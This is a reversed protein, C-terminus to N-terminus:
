RVEGESKPDGLSRKLWRGVLDKDAAQFDLDSYEFGMVVFRGLGNLRQCSYGIGEEFNPDKATRLKLFYECKPNDLYNRLFAPSFAESSAKGKLKVEKQSQPYSSHNATIVYDSLNGHSQDFRGTVRIKLENVLEDMLKDPISDVLPTSVLINKFKQRAMLKELTAKYENNNVTQTGIILTEKGMLIREDKVSDTGFVYTVPGLINQLMLLEPDGQSYGLYLYRPWDKSLTEFTFGEVTQTGLKSTAVLSFQNFGETSGIIEIENQHLKIVKDKLEKPRVILKRLDLSTGTSDTVRLSFKKMGQYLIAPVYGLPYSERHFLPPEENVLELNLTVEKRECSTNRTCVNFTIKHSTNMYDISIHKWSFLYNSSPYVSNQNPTIQKTFSMEGFTPLNGNNVISITPEVEGNLDTASVNFLFHTGTLESPLNVEPSLRADSVSITTKKSLKRGDKAVVQVNLDFNVSSSSSSSLKKVLFHQPELVLNFTNHDVNEVRIWNYNEAVYVNSPGLPYDENEIDFSIKKSEGETVSNYIALNTEFKRPTDLVKLLAQHRQGNVENDTSFLWFDVKYIKQKITPDAIDNATEYEPTWVLKWVAEKKIVGNITVEEETEILQISSSPLNEVRVIPKGPKPVIFKLRHESKRGEKFEMTAEYDAGWAGDVIDQTIEELPALAGGQPYPDEQKCSFLASCLVIVVLFKKM